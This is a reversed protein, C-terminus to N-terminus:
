GRIRSKNTLTCRLGSQHVLPDRKHIRVNRSVISKNELEDSTSDVGVILWHTIKSDRISYCAFTM